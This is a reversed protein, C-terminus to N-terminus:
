LITSYNATAEHPAVSVAAGYDYGDTRTWAIDHNGPVVILHEMDLGLLGNTLKFLATRAATFEELSAIYTLDGM